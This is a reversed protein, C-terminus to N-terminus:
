LGRAELDLDARRSAVPEPRLGALVKSRRPREHDHRRGPGIELPCPPAHVVMLINM